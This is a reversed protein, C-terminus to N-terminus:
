PAVVELGATFVARETASTFVLNRAGPTAGARATIPMIVTPLAGNNATGRVVKSGDFSIDGGSASFGTRPVGNLGEGIVALFASQGAGIVLHQDTATRFTRGDKSWALFRPNVAAPQAEVRIPDIERTNGGTVAIVTPAESGGAFSTRFARLVPVRAADFYHSELYAPLVPGDLPEAYVQYDGPTLSALSFRGERDTLVGVRTIGDIGTACVHAGFVPGGAETLVQGKIAGFEPSEALGYLARIGALDDAELSRIWTEGPGGTQYMTASAVASHALGFAHGIGHTVYSQIDYAEAGGDTGFRVRPNLVIDAETIQVQGALQRVWTYTRYPGSGVLDRNSPTDAFTILNVFDARVDAMATTGDLYAGVPPLKWTRLAAEVAALPASTRDLNPLLELPRDNLVFPIPLTAVPWRHPQPKGGVEETALTFAWVPGGTLLALM